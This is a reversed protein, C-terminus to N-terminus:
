GIRKALPISSGFLMVTDAALAVAPGQHFVFGGVPPTLPTQTAGGDAAVFVHKGPHLGTFFGKAEGSLQVRCLTTSLKSVILGMAPMKAEAHPDATRVDYYNGVRDGRVYVFKGVIDAAECVATIITPSSRPRSLAM